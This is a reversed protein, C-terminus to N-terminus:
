LPRASEDDCWELIRVDHDTLLARLFGAPDPWAEPTLVGPALQGEALALVALATFTTSARRSNDHVEYRLSRSGGEVEVRLALPIDRRPIEFYREGHPSELFAVLYEM